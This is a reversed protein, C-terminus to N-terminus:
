RHWKEMRRMDEALDARQEPTLVNSIEVLADLVKSSAVNAMAIGRLRLGELEDRDLEGETLAAHFEAKLGKGEVRLALLEPVTRDIIPDLAARQANTGDVRGILRDAGSRAHELVKADSINGHGSRGGHGWGGPRGFASAAPAYFTVAVLAGVGVLAALGFFGFRRRPHRHRRTEPLEPTQTNEPNM